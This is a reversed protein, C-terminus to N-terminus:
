AAIGKPAYIRLPFKYDILFVRAAGARVIEAALAELVPPYISDKGDPNHLISVILGGLCHWRYADPEAGSPFVLHVASAAGGEIWTRAREWAHNGCHINANKPLTNLARLKRLQEAFPPLQRRSM